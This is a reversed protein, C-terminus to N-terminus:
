GSAILWESRAPRAGAAPVRVRAVIAYLLGLATGSAIMALLTLGLPITKSNPFFRILLQVFQDVPINKLVHDGFLEVPSPIGAVLRLFSMVLVAVLSAVLGAGIASLAALMIHRVSPRRRQELESAKTSKDVIEM